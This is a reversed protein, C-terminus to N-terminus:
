KRALYVENLKLTDLTLLLTRCYFQTKTLLSKAVRNIMLYIILKITQIMMMIIDSLAAIWGHFLESGDLLHQLNIM